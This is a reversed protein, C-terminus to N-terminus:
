ELVLVRDSILRLNPIGIEEGAERMHLLALTHGGRAVHSYLAELFAMTRPKSNHILLSNVSDVIILSPGEAARLSRRIELLAMELLRPSEVHRADGSKPSMVLDSMCDIMEAHDIPEELQAMMSILVAEPMSSSFLTTPMGAERGYRLAGRMVDYYDDHDLTFSFFGTGSEQLLTPVESLHRDAM